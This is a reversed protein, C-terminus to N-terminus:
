ELAVPLEQFELDPVELLDLPLDDVAPDCRLPFFFAGDAACPLLYRASYL